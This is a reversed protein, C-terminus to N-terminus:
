GRLDELEEWRAFVKELREQATEREATLAKPRGPDAGPAYLDPSGLSRDLEALQAELRGVEAEVEVLEKEQWPTLRKRTPTDSM